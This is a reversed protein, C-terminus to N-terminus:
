GISTPFVRAQMQLIVHPDELRVRVGAEIIQIVLGAFGTRNGFRRAPRMSPAFQEHEGIHRLRWQRDFRDAPDVRDEIDFAFDVAQGRFLPERYSLNPDRRQDRRKLVPHAALTGPERTMGIDGLGHIVHEFSPRRECAEETISPNAQCIVRRFASQTAYGKTPFGPQERSGVNARSVAWRVIDKYNWRM